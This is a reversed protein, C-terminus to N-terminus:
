EQRGHREGEQLKRQREQQLRLSAHVSTPSVLEEGVKEQRKREKCECEMLSCQRVVSPKTEICVLYILRRPWFIAFEIELNEFVTVAESM